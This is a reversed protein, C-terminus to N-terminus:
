DCLGNTVNASEGFYGSSDVCSVGTGHPQDIIIAWNKGNSSTHCHLIKNGTINKVVEFLAANVTEDAFLGQNCNDNINEGYQENEIFYIGAQKQVTSINSRVAAKQANIRPVTLAALVILALVSIMAVVVLLEVITFGKKM